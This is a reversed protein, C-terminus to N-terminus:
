FYISMQGISLTAETTNNVKSKHYSERCERNYCTKINDMRCLSESPGFEESLLRNRQINKLDLTLM